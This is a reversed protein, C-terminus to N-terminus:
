AALLLRTSKARGDHRTKMLHVLLKQKGIELITATFSPPEEFICSASISRADVLSDLSLMPCAYLM